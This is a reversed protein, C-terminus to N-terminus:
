VYPACQILAEIAGDPQRMAAFADEFRELPVVSTTREEVSVAGFARCVLPSRSSTSTSSARRSPEVHTIHSAGAQRLLQGVVPGIPGGGIVAVRDGLRIGSGRVARVAV